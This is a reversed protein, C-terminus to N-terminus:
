LAYVAGTMKESVEWLRRAAAEDQAREHCGVITPPGKAEGKGSPGTYEGGKLDDGLAAYLTPLAGDAAPQSVLPGLLSGLKNLPFPLNRGLETNSLGPHAAMSLTDKGAAKLKRQLELAFMLCAIKSQGYALKRSYKKEFHIDDFQIGCWNHALSSLNVIRAGATKTITPLLLSTLLFHGLYNTALQNEFGDVTKQYPSMMIGANNILLDCRDHKALFDAAFARVSKLSSTDVSGCEIHAKPYKALIQARAAATKEPNRCALVVTAGKSALALATEYGLGVNAGTVIAIRGTQDKAKDLTWDNSMM